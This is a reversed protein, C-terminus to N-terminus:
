RSVGNARIVIQNPKHPTDMPKDLEFLVPIEFRVAVRKGDSIAPVWAGTNYRKIMRLAVDELGYGLTTRSMYNGANGDEDIDFSIVVEGEKRNERAFAPYFIGTILSHAFTQMGNIYIPKRDPSKNDTSNIVSVTQVSDIKSPVYQTLEHTTFNYRLREFGRTYGIWVGAKKDASYHGEAVLAQQYYYKWVSDKLNNHYYGETLTITGFPATQRFAGEKINNNSVTYVEKTNLDTNYM